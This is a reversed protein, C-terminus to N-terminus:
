PKDMGKAKAVDQAVTDWDVDDKEHAYGVFWEHTEAAIVQKLEYPHPCFGLVREGGAEGNIAGWGILPVTIAKHKDSELDVFVASWDKAAILSQINKM